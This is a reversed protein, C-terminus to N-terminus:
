TFEQQFSAQGQQVAEKTLHEHICARNASKAISLCQEMKIANLHRRLIGKFQDPNLDAESQALKIRMQKKVVGWLTEICNFAPSYKPMMVPILYLSSMAEEAEYTLHASHNDLVLYLEKDSAM